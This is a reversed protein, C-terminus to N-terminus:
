VEVEQQCRCHWQEWLFQECQSKSVWLELFMAEGRLVYCFGQKAASAYGAAILFEM